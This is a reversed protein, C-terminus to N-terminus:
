AVGELGVMSAEVEEEEERRAAVVVRRAGRRARGASRDMEQERGIARNWRWVKADAGEAM